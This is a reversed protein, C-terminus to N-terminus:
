RRLYKRSKARRNRKHRMTRRRRGRSAAASGGGTVGAPRVSPQPPYLRQIFEQLTIVTKFYRRPIYFQSDVVDTFNGYLASVIESKRSMVAMSFPTVYCNIDWITNLNTNTNIRLLFPIKEKIKQPIEAMIESPNELFYGVADNFQQNQSPDSPAAEIAASLNQVAHKFAKDHSLSITKALIMNNNNYDTNIRSSRASASLLAPPAIRGGSILNSAKPSYFAAQLLIRQPVNM